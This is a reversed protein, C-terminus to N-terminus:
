EIVVKLLNSKHLDLKWLKQKWAFVETKNEKVKKNV